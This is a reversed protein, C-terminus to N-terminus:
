NDEYIKPVYADLCPFIITKIKNEFLFAIKNRSKPHFELNNIEKHPILNIKMQMVVMLYLIEFSM